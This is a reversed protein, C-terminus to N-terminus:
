AATGLALLVGALACGFVPMFERKTPPDDYERWILRYYWHAIPTFLVALALHVWADQAGAVFMVVNFIVNGTEVVAIALFIKWYPNPKRRRRRSRTKARIRPLALALAM